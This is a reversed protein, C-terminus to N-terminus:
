ITATERLLHLAVFEVSKILEDLRVYEHDSHACALQGAGTTLVPMTPYESAFLRADCSVTWGVIPQDDPWISIKEAIEKAHRMADSDPDGDFADNHLKDYSGRIANTGSGPHQIQQLYAHAGRQAARLMRQMVEQIGHTPVFGQGGELKLYTTNTRGVLDMKPVAGALKSLRSKSMILARVITAMKTIAGDNELISGMHGTAGHVDIILGNGDRRLDYHRQVKPSGTASDVVNTKDGYLGIYEDMATSLCDRVLAEVAENPGADFDIRFAVHGCIRSPHEGFHDIMGHCTQVPRQPFLDHRSETKIARGEQEMASIVFASMEFQSIDQMTLDFRYWVAGRNAPYIRNDCCELVLLQYYRQKLSRDLALSLSGNGGTEEEIVFMGTVNRNFTMNQEALYEAIVRLAGIIVIVNGKDDCAGRGIVTEEEVRPPIYPAVVDIHANVAVSVGQNNRSTGDVLFLLNSRNQYAQEASLGEPCEATKTFHLQSYAPHQSIAPDVPRRECRANVYNMALLERELIDFVASERQSMLEVDPAPTTDIQCIEVLLDRLYVRFADSHIRDLLQSTM